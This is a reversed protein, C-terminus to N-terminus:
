NILPVKRKRMKWFEPVGPIGIDQPGYSFEQKVGVVQFADREVIHYNMPEVGKLLLELLFM